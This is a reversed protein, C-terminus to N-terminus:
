NSTFTLTKLRLSNLVVSVSSFAMAAAALMPHLSRLFDPASDFPYLIGAAVPILIINYIFAWFLNQKIVRMTSKSLHLSHLVSMLNNSVLTIDSAEIAIDTGSGLAIGIDASALAPADNIGDGVMGTIGQQNEQYQKIYHSKDQPLVGSVVETIGIQHAVSETTRQNDGSIISVGIGYRRLAKIVIRAEERVTDAIGILGLLVNDVGVWVVTKAEKEFRKAESLLSKVQFGKELLFKETGLVCNLDDYKATIGKGPHAYFETPDILSLSEEEAKNVIAEALPHESMRELSAALKLLEDPNNLSAYKSQEVGPNLVIENVVPKGYTITGTKDFVLYEIQGALELTQGSKFLIGHTAGLGTGVMIATPTALGLACPCAIVLVATLRLLATTIEGDTALWVAFVLFAIGIVIPVFFSAVRDALRQIPPKSGQAQQVLKIIQAIVTDKGVKTVRIKLMGQLNQTAGVVTDGTTKQVPISEGTLMSENVNSHGDIVLGDLPIKEGPKILLSDGVKVNGISIDEVSDPKILHATKAQLGILKKLASGTKGKAKVELLKGLKILTIIMASTEFYVHEGLSTSEITLYVTVIISFFYAVSSGMAVLVDMNAARNRLSKFGHVYYDSGVYFQVPTALLFMLWPVWWQFAWQDVLNFDRAMSLIFLPLTFFVGTWFKRSQNKIETERAIDVSEEISLDSSELHAIGYGANEIVSSIEDQSILTPVFRIHANENAYNVSVDEVGDKRRLVRDITAACNACTMGTIPLDIDKYMINMFYFFGFDLICIVFLRWYDL